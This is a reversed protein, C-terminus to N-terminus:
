AQGIHLPLRTVRDWQPEGGEVERRQEVHLWHLGPMACPLNDFKIFFRAFIIKEAWPADLTRESHRKGDPGVFAYRVHLAEEKDDSKHWWSILLASASVLTGKKGQLKAEEILQLLGEVYVSERVDMLSIVGSEPDVLQRECFLSWLHEAM